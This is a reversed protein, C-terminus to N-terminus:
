ARTEQPRTAVCGWPWAGYPMGCAAYFDRVGSLLVGIAMALLLWRLPEPVAPPSVSLATPAAWWVVVVPLLYALAAGCV